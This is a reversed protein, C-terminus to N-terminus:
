SIKMPRNLNPGRDLYVPPFGVTSSLPGLPNERRFFVVFIPQGATPRAIAESDKFLQAGGTDVRIDPM